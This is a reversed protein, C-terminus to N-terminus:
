RPSRTSDCTAANDYVHRPVFATLRAGDGPRSSVELTGGAAELREVMSVLGVGKGWAADVDFGVGNDAITLTLGDGCGTLRVSVSKASSYKIANQLAEQLIRIQCMKLDPPLRPPVHEQAYDIPIGARSTERCLRGLAAALGIMRLRAPHLRHSLEHLSKSIDRATCLAELASPAHSNMRNLTELEITLLLMRQCIDDHLERAIRSREGEQARLLRGGLDRNREYSRRLKQQSQRLEGEARRRRKRQILLGTILVTQTVFLAAAAAIYHWYRDWITADRFRVQADAPVRAEDIGWRRLQRWDVQDANLHLTTLPINEAREGRLVRLTVEAIREIALSQSYLSGGVIGRGMTSDVWSYTPANAAKIVRDVYELPHFRKGEGDETILVYYVASHKPLRSLQEVLATTTLGSLFVFEIRAGTRQLQSRAAAEFAKDARAAGTVVYLRQLDPQLQRILGLTSAFDREHILGTSNPLRAAGPTNALFVVPTGAFLSDRYGQVFEVAADQMAVVADFVVGQYKLRLFDRFAVRYAPDPFRTVDIFESYYDLNMALGTDLMRPLASEGTMSFESDRRTSYLVLVRKHDDQASAYAAPAPALQSLLILAAWV